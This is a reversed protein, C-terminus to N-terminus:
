DGLFGRRLEGPCTVYVKSGSSIATIIEPCHVGLEQEEGHRGRHLWMRLQSCAARWLREWAPACVSHGVLEWCQGPVVASFECSRIFCWTFSLLWCIM